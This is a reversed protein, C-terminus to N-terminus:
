FHKVKLAYIYTYICLPTFDLGVEVRHETPLALLARAPPINEAGSTTATLIATYLTCVGVTGYNKIGM